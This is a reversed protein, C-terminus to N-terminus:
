AKMSELPQDTRHTRRWDEVADLMANFHFDMRKDSKVAAAQGDEAM